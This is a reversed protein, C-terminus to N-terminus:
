RLHRLEPSVRLESLSVRIHKCSIRVRRHCQSPTCFDGACAKSRPALKHSRRRRHARGWRCHLQRRLNAAPSLPTHCSLDASMTATPVSVHHCGPRPKPNIAWIVASRIHEQMPALPFHSPNMRDLWSYALTQGVFRAIVVSLGFSDFDFQRQRRRTSISLQLRLFSCRDPSLIEPVRKRANPESCSQALCRQVIPL